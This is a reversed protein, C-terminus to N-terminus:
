QRIVKTNYNNRQWDIVDYVKFDHKATKDLRKRVRCFVLSLFKLTKLFFLAKLIFYFNNKMM